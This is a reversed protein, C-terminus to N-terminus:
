NEDQNAALYDQYLDKNRQLVKDLMQNQRELSMGNILDVITKSCEAYNRDSIDFTFSDLYNLFVIHFEAESLRRLKTQNM